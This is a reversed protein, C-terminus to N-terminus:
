TELPPPSSASPKQVSSSLRVYLQEIEIALATLKIIRERISRIYDLDSEGEAVTRDFTFRLETLEYDLKRWLQVINNDSLTSM